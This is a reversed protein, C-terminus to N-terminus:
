RTVLDAIGTALDYTPKWGLTDRLRQSSATIHRVDGLRYQGTVVPKPGNLATALETALDAITHVTGSGVNYATFAPADQVTTAATTVATAIDHVHIFDRRQGGDEYVRPAEGRALASRFLSAVGAYPTNRPMGPGYVNHFRLAAVRGGTERAWTSALHEGNLKTTAYTNRPDAPATEDVLGPRLQEGCIPCPPEFRGADLDETRRPGPAVLGHRDCEYRGEGYVVMSSAYVLNRVKSHALQKLLVATGLSNSSVYDDIDDLDVGLGVKAALHIVVDVGELAAAVADPDRIDGVTLDIAPPTIHVDPRLSDFVVPNHGEALLQTRVHQGIFGAGGTLLVRM